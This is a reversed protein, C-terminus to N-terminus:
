KVVVNADKPIKENVSKVIKALEPTVAKMAILEKLEKTYSQYHAVWESNGTAAACAFRKAWIKLLCMRVKANFEGANEGKGTKSLLATNFDQLAHFEATPNWGNAGNKFNAPELVDPFPNSVIPLTSLARLFYDKANGPAKSIRADLEKKAEDFKLDLLLQMVPDSELGVPDMTRQAVTREGPQPLFLARPSWAKPPQKTIWELLPTWAKMTPSHGSGPEEVYTVDLKRRKLEEVAKRVNEVPAMSAGNTDKEGHLIYFPIGRLRELGDGEMLAPAGAISAGANWIEPHSLLHSWTGMGGMSAGTITLRRFDIRYNKGAWEILRYVLAMQQPSSWFQKADSTTPYLVFYGANNLAPTYYGVLNDADSGSGHLVVVLGYAKTPTYDKPPALNFWGRPNESAGPVQFKWYNAKKEFPAPGSKAIVELETFTLGPNFQGLEKFLDVRKESDKEAFYKDLAKEIADAKAADRTGPPEAAVLTLATLLLASLALTRM